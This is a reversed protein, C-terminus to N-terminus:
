LFVGVPTFYMVIIVDTFVVVCSTQIQSVLENIDESRTTDEFQAGKNQISSLMEEQNASCISICSIFLYM